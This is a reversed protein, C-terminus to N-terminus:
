FDIFEGQQSPMPCEDLHSYSVHPLKLFDSQSISGHKLGLPLPMTVRKGSELVGQRQNWEKPSTKWSKSRDTGSSLFFRGQERFLRLERAWERIVGMCHEEASRGDTRTGQCGFREESHFLTERERLETENAVFTPATRKTRRVSRSMKPVFITQSFCWTIRTLTYHTHPHKEFSEVHSM